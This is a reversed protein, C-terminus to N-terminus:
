TLYTRTCLTVARVEFQKDLWDVLPKLVSRYHANSAGKFQNMHCFLTEAEVRPREEYFVEDNIFTNVVQKLTQDEITVMLHSEIEGEENKVEKTSVTFTKVEEEEQAADGAAAAAAPRQKFGTPLPTARPFNLMGPMPPPFALTGSSFIPFPAPQPPAQKEKHEDEDDQQKDPTSASFAKLKEDHVLVEHVLDSELLVSGHSATTLKTLVVAEAEGSGGRVSLRRSAEALLDAVTFDALKAEPVPVVVSSGEYEVHVRM